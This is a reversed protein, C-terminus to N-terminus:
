TCHLMSLLFFLFFIFIFFMVPKFIKHTCALQCLVCRHILVSQDSMIKVNQRGVHTVVRSPRFLTVSHGSSQIYMIKAIDRTLIIKLM